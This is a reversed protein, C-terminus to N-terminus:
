KMRVIIGDERNKSFCVVGKGQNGSFIHKPNVMCWLSIELFFVVCFFLSTRLFLIFTITAFESTFYLDLIISSTNLYGTSWKKKIKNSYSLTGMVHVKLRSYLFMLVRCASMLGITWIKVSFNCEFNDDWVRVFLSLPPPYGLM